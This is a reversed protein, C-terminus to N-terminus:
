AAGKKRQEQEALARYFEALADALAKRRKEKEEPTLEPRTVAVHTKEIM